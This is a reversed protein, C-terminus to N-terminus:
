LPRDALITAPASKLPMQTEPRDIDAANPRARCYRRMNRAVGSVQATMALRLPMTSNNKDLPALGLRGSSLGQAVGSNQASYLPWSSM